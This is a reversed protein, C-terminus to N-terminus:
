TGTLSEANDAGRINGMFPPGFDNRYSRIHIGGQTLHRIQHHMYLSTGFNIRFFIVYGPLHISFM